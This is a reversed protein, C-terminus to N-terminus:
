VRCIEVRTSLILVKTASAQRELIASAIIYNRHKLENLNSIPALNFLASTPVSSDQASSTQQPSADCRDTCRRDTGAARRRLSVWEVIMAGRMWRQRSSTGAWLDACPAIIVTPSPRCRGCRNRDSPLASPNTYPRGDALQRIPALLAAEFDRDLFLFDLDCRAHHERGPGVVATDGTRRKSRGLSIAQFYGEPVIARMRMRQMEVSNVRCAHVTNGAGADDIRTFLEDILEVGFWEAAMKIMAVGQRQGPMDVLAHIAQEHDIGIRGAMRFMGLNCM